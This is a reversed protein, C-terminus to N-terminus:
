ASKRQTYNQILTSYMLADEADIDKDLRALVKKIYPAVLTMCIENKRKLAENLFKMAMVTSGRQMGLAVRKLDSALSQLIFDNSM